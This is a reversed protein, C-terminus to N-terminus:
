SAAPNLIAYKAWCKLKSSHNSYGKKSTIHVSRRWLDMNPTSLNTLSALISQWRYRRKSALDFANKSSVPTKYRPLKKVGLDLTSLGGTQTVFNFGGIKAFFITPLRHYFTGFPEPFTIIGGDFRRSSTKLLLFIM